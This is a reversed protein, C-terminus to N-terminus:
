RSPYSIHLFAGSSIPFTAQSSFDIRPISKHAALHRFGPTGLMWNFLFPLALSECSQQKMNEVIQRPYRALVDSHRLYPAITFERSSHAWGVVYRLTVSSSASRCSPFRQSVPQTRKAWTVCRFGAVKPRYKRCDCKSGDGARRRVVDVTAEQRRGSGRGTRKLTLIITM